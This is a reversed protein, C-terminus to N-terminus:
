KKIEIILGIIFFLLWYVATTYNKNFIQNIGAIILNDLEFWTLIWGLLLTGIM